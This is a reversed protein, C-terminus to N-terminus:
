MIDIGDLRAVVAVAGWTEYCARARTLFLKAQDTKGCSTLFDAFLENALGEEHVFRHRRASEIAAQYKEEAEEM